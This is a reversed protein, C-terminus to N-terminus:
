TATTKQTVDFHKLLEGISVAMMDLALKSCTRKLHERM